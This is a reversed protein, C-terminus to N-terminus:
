CLWKRKGTSFNFHESNQLFQKGEQREFYFTDSASFMKICVDQELSKVIRIHFIGAFVLLIGPTGSARAVM